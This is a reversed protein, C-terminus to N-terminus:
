YSLLSGMQGKSYDGVLVPAWACSLINFDVLPLLLLLRLLKSFNRRKSFLIAVIRNRSLPRNESSLGLTRFQFFFYKKRM